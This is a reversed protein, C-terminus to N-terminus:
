LFIPMTFFVRLRIGDSIIELSDKSIVVGTRGTSYSHDAQRAVVDVPRYYKLAFPLSNRLAYNCPFLVKVSKRQQSHKIRDNIVDIVTLYM